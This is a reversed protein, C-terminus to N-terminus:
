GERDVKRLPFIRDGLKGHVAAEGDVDANEKEVEDDDNEDAQPHAPLFVVQFVEREAAPANRPPGHERREDRRFGAGPCEEARRAFSEAMAVVGVKSGVAGLIEDGEANPQHSDVIEGDLLKVGPMMARM